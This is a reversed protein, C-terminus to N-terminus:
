KWGKNGTLPVFKLKTIEKTTITEDRLEYLTLVQENRNGVPIILKGPNKLQKLLTKDIVPAGATVIIGDYPAYAPWGNSGDGAHTVCNYGEGKLLESTKKALETEIEITFLQAKLECLVAAQYGSGTGIELIRDHAKVSLVQTMLAVTYPHSITQGFGIPLAKEDYAQMKLGPAVFKERPVRAMAALVQQDTIGLKELRRLMRQRQSEFVSM